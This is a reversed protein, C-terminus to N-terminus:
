FEDVGLVRARIVGTATRETGGGPLIRGNGLDLPKVKSPASFIGEEVELTVRVEPTKPLALRLRARTLDANVADSVFTPDLETGAKGFRLTGNKELYELEARSMARQVVETGGKAALFGAVQGFPTISPQFAAPGSLVNDPVVHVSDADYTFTTREVTTVPVAAETTVARSVLSPLLGFGVVPAILLWRKVIRKM